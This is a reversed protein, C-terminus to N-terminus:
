LGSYPCMKNDVITISFPLFKRKHDACYILSPEKRLNKHDKEEETLLSTCSSFYLLATGEDITM